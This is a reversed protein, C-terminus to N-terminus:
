EKRYGKNCHEESFNIFWYNDSKDYIYDDLNRFCEKRQKCNKNSCYTIDKNALPKDM